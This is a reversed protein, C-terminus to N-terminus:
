RKFEVQTYVKTIDHYRGEPPQYNSIPPTYDPGEREFPFLNPDRKTAEVHLEPSMLQLEQLAEQQSEVMSRIADREKEHEQHKYLSWKKLLLARRESEEFPLEVHPRQRAKDLLRVPTIFDEIPILEQSAKELRRIRKKLRDKVAQDKKPDVKKKKRLPEARMPILEWFSLFSARQHTDRIQTQWTGLLWSRSHLARASVGLAALAM